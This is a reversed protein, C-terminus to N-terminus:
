VDPIKNPDNALFKALEEQYLADIQEQTLNANRSAQFALSLLFKVVELGAAVVLEEGPM